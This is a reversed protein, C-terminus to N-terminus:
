IGEASSQVNIEDAQQLPIITYSVVVGLLHDANDKNNFNINTVTVFPMYKKVQENVREAITAYTNENFPEFFYKRLGVGFNVDMVREGPNTLLLNKFNQRIVEKYTLNNQYAGLVNNFKLPFKPSLGKM